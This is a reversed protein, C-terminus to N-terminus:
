TEHGFTEVVHSRTRIIRDLRGFGELSRPITIRRGDSAELVISGYGFELPEKVILRSIAPWPIRTEHGNTERVGADDVVVRRRMRYHDRLFLYVIPVFAPAMGVALYAAFTYAGGVMAPVVLTLAVAVPLLYMCIQGASLGPYMFTLPLPKRAAEAMLPELRRSLESQLVEFPELSLGMDGHFIKLRRRPRAATVVILRPSAYFDDVEHFNITTNWVLRSLTVDVSSLTVQTTALDLNALVVMAAILASVALIGASLTGRMLAGAPILLTGGLTAVAFIVLLTAPFKFVQTVVGWIM